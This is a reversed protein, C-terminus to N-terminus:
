PNKLTEIGSGLKAFRKFFSAVVNQMNKIIRKFCAFRPKSIQFMSVLEPMKSITKSFDIKTRREVWCTRSQFCM